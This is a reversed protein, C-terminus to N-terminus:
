FILFNPNIFMKAGRQKFFFNLPVHECIQKGRTFSYYRLGKLKETHYLGAGGFASDCEILPKDRPINKFHKDVYSQDGTKKAMEWCDYNCDKTRLAWIDYYDESCNAFMADWNKYEFNSKFHSIDMDKANVEDCDLVLLYVDKGFKEELLSMYMNRAEQLSNPRPLGRTPQRYINRNESDKESWEKVISFTNDSSFGDIFLAHYDKFLSTYKEVNKLVANIHQENNLVIGAVLLTYNPFDTEKKNIFKSLKHQEWTKLM